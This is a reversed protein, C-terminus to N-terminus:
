VATVAIINGVTVFVNEKLASKDLFKVNSHRLTESPSVIDETKLKSLSRVINREGDEEVCFINL